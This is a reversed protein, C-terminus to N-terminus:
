KLTLGARFKLTQYSVIWTEDSYRTITVVATFAWIEELKGGAPYMNPQYTKIQYVYKNKTTHATILSINWKNIWPYAGIPGNVIQNQINPKLFARAIAGNRFSLSKAYAAVFQDPTDYQSRVFSELYSITEKYSQNNVM